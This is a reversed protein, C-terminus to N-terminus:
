ASTTGSTAAPPTVAAVLPAKRAAPVSGRWRSATRARMGAERGGTIPRAAASRLLVVHRAIAGEGSPPATTTPLPRPLSRRDTTATTWNVGVPSLDLLVLM